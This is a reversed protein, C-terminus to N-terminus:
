PMSITVPVGPSMIGPRYVARMSWTYTGAALNPVVVTGANTSGDFTADMGAPPLASGFLKYGAAMGSAPGSFRVLATYSDRKAASVGTPDPTVTVFKTWASAGKRGDALEAVVSYYYSGAATLTSDVWAAGTTASCRMAGILASLPIPAATITQITSNGERQRQVSIASTNPPLTFCVNAWISGPVQLMGVIIAAPADAIVPLAVSKDAVGITMNVYRAALRYVYTTGGILGSDDWTTTTASMWASQHEPTTMNSSRYRAVMYATVSLGRTWTMHVSTPSNVLVELGTPAHGTPTQAPSAAAACLTATAILLNHHRM